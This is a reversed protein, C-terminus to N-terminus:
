KEGEWCVTGSVSNNILNIYHTYTAENTPITTTEQPNPGIDVRYTCTSGQCATGASYVKTTCDSGSDDDSNCGGLLFLAFVPILLLKKMTNLNTESWEWFRNYM